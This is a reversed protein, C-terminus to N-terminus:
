LPDITTLARRVEDETVSQRTLTELKTKSQQLEDALTQAQANVEDLADSLMGGRSGSARRGQGAEAIIQLARERSARIKEELEARRATLRGVEDTEQQRAAAYTWVVLDPSRFGAWHPRRSHALV